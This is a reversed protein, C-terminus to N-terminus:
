HLVSFLNGGGGPAFEDLQGRGHVTGVGMGKIAADARASNMGSEYAM